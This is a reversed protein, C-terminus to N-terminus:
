RPHRDTKATTRTGRKFAAVLETAARVDARDVFVHADVGFDSPIGLRTEAIIGHGVLTLQLSVCDVSLGAYVAIADSTPM